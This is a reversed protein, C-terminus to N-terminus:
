SWRICAQEPQELRVLSARQVCQPQQTDSFARQAVSVQGSPLHSATEAWSSRGGGNCAAM